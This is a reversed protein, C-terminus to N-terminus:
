GGIVGIAASSSLFRFGDVSSVSPCLSPLKLIEEETKGTDRQTRQPHNRKKKGQRRKM